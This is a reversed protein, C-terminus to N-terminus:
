QAFSTVWRNIEGLGSLFGTAILAVFLGNVLLLATTLCQSAAQEQQFAKAELSDHWGRLSESFGKQGHVANKLRWQLEGSEDVHRLAELLPLGQQLAKEVKEARRLLIRNDAGEAALILARDETLGADLLIALLGSFDRLLRNRRAPVKLAIWDGIPFLGSQLWSVMRPGGTFCIVAVMLCFSLGLQSVYIFSKFDSLLQFAPPAPMGFGAHISAIVPLVKDMAVPVTLWIVPNLVLLLAIQYNVAARAQSGAGQLMRHCLPLIKGMEGTEEAVKLAGAVRPALFGPVRDVARALSYGNQVYAALVHFSPGFVADGTRSMAVLTEKTSWGAKLGTEMLTLFFRSREQRRVPLSLVYGCLAGFIASPLLAYLLWGAISEITRLLSM